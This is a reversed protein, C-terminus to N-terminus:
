DSIKEVFSITEELSTHEASMTSRCENLRVISKANENQLDALKGKLRALETRKIAAARSRNIAEPSLSSIPQGDSRQKREIAAKILGDLAALKNAMDYQM